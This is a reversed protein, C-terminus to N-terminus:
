TAVGHDCSSCGGYSNMDHMGPHNVSSIRQPHIRYTNLRSRPASYPNLPLLPKPPQRATGSQDNEKIIM